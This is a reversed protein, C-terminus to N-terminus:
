QEDGRTRLSGSPTLRVSASGRTRGTFSVRVGYRGSGLFVETADETRIFENLTALEGAATFDSCSWLGVTGASTELLYAGATEIEVYVTRQVGVRHGNARVDLTDDARCDVDVQQKWIDGDFPLPESSCAGLGPYRDPAEALWRRELEELRSGFIDGLLWRTRTEAEGFDSRDLLDLLRDVGYVAYLWRFFHGQGRTPAKLNHSPLSAPTLALTDGSFSEALGELVFDAALTRDARHSGAHTLEHGLSRPTTVIARPTTLYCGDAHGGCDVYGDYLYVEQKPRFAIDFVEEVRQATRDMAVLTGQCLPEGFATGIRLRATEYRLTPFEQGADGCGSACVVCLGWRVAGM